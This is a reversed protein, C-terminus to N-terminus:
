IGFIQQNERVEYLAKFTYFDAPTTIKINDCNGQVTYLEYGYLQMLSASDIMNTNGDTRAKEHVHCLQDLYFCQPAKAHFCKSRDTIGTIKTDTISVITETAPTVTIASGFTKVSQICHSILAEDIFPRVGDHVLVISNDPSFTKLACLGNYISEQGTAGGPVVMRVKTMGYKALINKLCPMWAELCVVVIADIETHLQFNEITYVILEKGYFQLFQKPRSKSNMRTGSGGAFILVNNM